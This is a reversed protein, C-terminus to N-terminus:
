AQEQPVTFCFRSGQGPESEVWIRGNHMEVIRRCITLGIGTGPIEKGHLRKFLGFIREAYEPNIGMGSDHVSVVWGEPKQEAWVHVKPQHEPKSYKIANSILNQFLQVMQMQDAMVTPLEGHTVLAGTEEIMANLNM